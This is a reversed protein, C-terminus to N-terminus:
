CRPTINESAKCTYVAGGYSHPELGHRAPWALHLPDWQVKRSIGYELAAVVGNLATFSM